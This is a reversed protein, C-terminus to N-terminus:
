VAVKQLLEEKFLDMEININASVSPYNIGAFTKLIARFIESSMKPPVVMGIQRRVSEKSGEFIFNDPFSQIRARERNTLARPESWHRNEPDM